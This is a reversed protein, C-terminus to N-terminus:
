KKVLKVVHHQGFVDIMRITYIGDVWNSADIKNEMVTGNKVMRGVVDTISFQKVYKAGECYFINNTPNPYITILHEFNTNNISLLLDPNKIVKSSDLIWNNPDLQMNTINKTSPIYFTNTNASINLLLTTDGGGSFCKVELPTKYLNNSAM